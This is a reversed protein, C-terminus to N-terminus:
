FSVIRFLNTWHTLPDFDTNGLGLPGFKLSLQLNKVDDCHWLTRLFPLHEPPLPNQVWVSSPLQCGSFDLHVRQTEPNRARLLIILDMNMIWTLTSFTSHCPLSMTKGQKRKSALNHMEVFMWVRTKCAFAHKDEFRNQALESSKHFMKMAKAQLDQLENQFSAKQWHILEYTGFKLAQPWWGPPDRTPCTPRTFFLEKM